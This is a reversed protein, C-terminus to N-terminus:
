ARTVVWVVERRLFFFWTECSYIISYNTYDTDIIEYDGDRFFFFGVKCKSGDCEATGKIHDITNSFPNLQSNDINILGDSHLSYGAQM